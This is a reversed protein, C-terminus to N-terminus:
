SGPVTPPPEIGMEVDTDAEVVWNLKREFLGDLNALLESKESLQQQGLWAAAPITPKKREVINNLKPNSKSLLWSAVFVCAVSAVAFLIGVGRNRGNANPRTTVDTERRYSAPNAHITDVIENTLINLDVDDAVNASAWQNLMADLRDDLADTQNQNNM